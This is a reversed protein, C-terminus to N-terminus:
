RTHFPAFCLKCLAVGCTECLMNSRKEKEKTSCFACRRYKDIKQPLHDGVNSLRITNEVTRRGDSRNTKRCRGVASSRGPKRRSNFNDILGNVLSSRFLLHSMAKIRKNKCHQEHLIYSNVVASDLFYYFLKIWWKRSKQVITYVAMHKDFHDVWGMYMNYEAISSPCTVKDRNGRQNTRLVEEVKSPNHMSSIVSMCKAGRNKWKTVSMESPSDCQAFDSAHRDIERDSKLLNSPYEVRDQRM